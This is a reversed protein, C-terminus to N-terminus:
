NLVSAYVSSGDSPWRDIPVETLPTVPNNSWIPDAINPLCDMGSGAMRESVPASKFLLPM